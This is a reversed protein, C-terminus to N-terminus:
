MGAVYSLEQAHHGDKYSIDEEAMLNLVDQLDIDLSSM